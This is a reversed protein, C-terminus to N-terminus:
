CQLISNPVHFKPYRSDTRLTLAHDKNATVHGDASVSHWLVTYVGTTHAEHNHWLNEIGHQDELGIWEWCVSWQWQHSQCIQTKCGMLLIGISTVNYSRNNKGKDKRERGSVRSRWEKKRKERRKEEEKKEVEEWRGM